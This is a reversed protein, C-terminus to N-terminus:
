GHIDQHNRALLRVAGNFGNHNRLPAPNELHNRALLRVAGNFCEAGLCASAGVYPIGHSCDCPGTSAAVVPSICSPPAPQNRALLRVAGNFCTRIVNTSGRGHSSETRAIARGRQLMVAYTESVLRRFSIGHSCDCPGTSAVGLPLNVRFFSRIGHSCDCPGTSADQARDQAQFFMNSETRAIARGRQLTNTGANSVRRQRSETRAIARGRQLPSHSPSPLVPNGLNRALLRVAGNFGEQSINATVMVRARNRALM